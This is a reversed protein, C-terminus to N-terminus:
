PRRVTQRRDVLFAMKLLVPLELTTQPVESGEAHEKRGQVVRAILNNDYPARIEILDGDEQWRGRSPAVPPM